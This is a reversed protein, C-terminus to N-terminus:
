RSTQSLFTNRMLYVIKVRTETILCKLDDNMIMVSAFYSFFRRPPLLFVTLKTRCNEMKNVKPFFQNKQKIPAIEPTCHGRISWLSSKRPSHVILHM